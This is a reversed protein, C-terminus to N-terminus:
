REARSGHNRRRTIAAALDGLWSELEALQHALQTPTISEGLEARWRAEQVKAQIGPLRALTAAVPEPAPADDDIAM